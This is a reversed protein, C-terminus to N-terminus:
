ANVFDRILGAVKDANTIPVMHGAGAVIAQTACQMRQALARNVAPIIPPSKDGEVLLVPCKFGEIANGSIVHANDDLLAGETAPILHIQATLARQMELPLSDWAVGTGWMDTFLRAADEVRGDRMAQAFPEVDNLYAQYAAMAKAAAFYVPEILVLSKVLDPREVALRLAVTAGLSHGILHAPKQLTEVAAKTCATHYDGQGDWEGSKGHSPFDFGRMTLVDGLHGAVGRWADSSALSCHLMLAGQAGTGWDQSYIM